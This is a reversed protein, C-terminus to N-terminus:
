EAEKDIKDWYEKLEGEIPKWGDSKKFVNVDPLGPYVAWYHEHDEAIVIWPEDWYQHDIIRKPKM